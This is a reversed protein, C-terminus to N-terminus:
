TMTGKFTATPKKDPTIESYHFSRGAVGRRLFALKIYLERGSPHDFKMVFGTAGKPVDLVIAEIPQGAGLLDAVFHWVSTDDFYYGPCNPNEVTYPRWDCPPSVIRTKPGRCYVALM